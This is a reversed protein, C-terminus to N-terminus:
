SRDDVGNRRERKESALDIGCDLCLRGRLCRLALLEGDRDLDRLRPSTIEVPHDFSPDNADQRDVAFSEIKDIPTDLATQSVVSKAYELLIQVLFQGLIFFQFM